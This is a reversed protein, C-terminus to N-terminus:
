PKPRYFQEVEERWREWKNSSDPWHKKDFGPAKKLTDNDIELVYYAKDPNWNLATWPMAFLKDGVGFLGGFSVVAYVVQGTAPDLVLEKIDGLNDGKPNKVKTGIIKSVRSIQQMTKNIKHAEDDAAKITEKELEAKKESVEQQKEVLESQKEQVDAAYAVSLHTLALISLAVIPITKKM